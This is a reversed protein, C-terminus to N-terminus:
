YYCKKLKQIVVVVFMINLYQKAKSAGEESKRWAEFDALGPKYM